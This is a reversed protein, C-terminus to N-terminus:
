AGLYLILIIFSGPPKQSFFCLCWLLSLVCGRPRKLAPLLSLSVLM